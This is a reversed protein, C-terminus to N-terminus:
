ENWEELKILAQGISKGLGVVHKRNNETYVIQIEDVARRISIERMTAPLNGVARNLLRIRGDGFELALNIDIM